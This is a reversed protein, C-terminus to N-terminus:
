DSGPLKFKSLDLKATLNQSKTPAAWGSYKALMEICKLKVHPDMDPDNIYGMIVDAASTAMAPYKKALVENIHEQVHERKMMMKGLEAASDRTVHPSTALYADTQTTGPKLIEAVFIKERLSLKKKKKPKPVQVDDSM